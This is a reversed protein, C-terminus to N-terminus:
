SAVELHLHEAIADVGAVRTPDDGLSEADRTHDEVADVVGHGALDDVRELHLDGLLADLLDGVGGGEETRLDVLVEGEHGVGSRHSIHGVFGIGDGFEEEVAGPPGVHGDSAGISQGGDLVGSVDEPRFGGQADGDANGRGEVGDLGLGVELFDDEGVRRVAGLDFDLLQTDTRSEVSGVEGRGKLLRDCFGRLMEIALFGDVVALAAGDGEQAVQGLLHLGTENRLEGLSLEDDGANQAGFAIGVSGVFHELEVVGLLDDSAQGVDESFEVLLGLSM